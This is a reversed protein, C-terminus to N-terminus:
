LKLNSIVIRMKTARELLRNDIKKMEIVEDSIRDKWAKLVLIANEEPEAKLHEIAQDIAFLAAFKTIIDIQEQKLM